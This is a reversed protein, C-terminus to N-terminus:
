PREKTSPSRTASSRSTLVLLLGVAIAAAADRLLQLAETGTRPLPSPDPEAAQPVDGPVPPVPAPDPEDVGPAPRDPRPEEPSPVEPGRVVPDPGPGPTPGPDPEPAPGAGPNPASPEAVEGIQVTVPIEAAAVPVAFVALVLM